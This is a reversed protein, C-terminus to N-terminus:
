CLLGFYMPFILPFGIFLETVDFKELFVLLNEDLEGVLLFFINSAIDEHAFSNLGSICDLAVGVVLFHHDFVFADLGDDGGEFM